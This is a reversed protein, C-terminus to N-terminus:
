VGHCLGVVKVGSNALSLCVASMPNVYNLLLANPCLERIEAALSNMVPITRMARFIGGPSLTDGICQDVGYKLPVEYDVQYARMGGILFTSIVYDAGMLAERRDTTVQFEAKLGYKEKIKELYAKLRTTRQDSIDMLCFTTDELGPTVLVDLILTKCFVISGAGIISIKRM